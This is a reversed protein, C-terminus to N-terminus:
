QHKILSCRREICNCFCLYHFIYEPMEFAPRYNYRSM